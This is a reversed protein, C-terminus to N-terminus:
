KAASVAAPSTLPWPRLSTQNTAVGVPDPESCRTAMPRPRTCARPRDARAGRRLHAPRRSGPAGGDRRASRSRRTLLSLSPARHLLGLCSGVPVQRSADGGPVLRGEHGGIVRMGREQIPDDSAQQGISLGGGVDHLLGVEREPLSGALIPGLRAAHPGPQHADSAIPREVPEPCLRPPRMENRTAAGDSRSSRGRGLRHGPRRRRHARGSGRAASAAPSRGSRRRPCAWGVLLLDEHQGIVLAEALGLDRGAQRQGDAGDLRARAAAIARSRSSGRCRAPGPRHRRVPPWRHIVSLRVLADGVQSELRPAHDVELGIRRRLRPRESACTRVSRRRGPRGRHRAGSARPPAPSPAM